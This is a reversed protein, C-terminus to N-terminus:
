PFASQTPFESETDFLYDHKLVDQMSQDEIKALFKRSDIHSQCMDLLQILQCTRIGGYNGTNVRKM